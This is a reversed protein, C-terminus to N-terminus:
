FLALHLAGIFGPDACANEAGVHLRVCADQLVAVENDLRNGFVKGDLLAGRGEQKFVRTFIRNDARVGRVNGDGGNCFVQGFLLLFAKEADMEEVGDAVHVQHLNNGASPGFLRNKPMDFGQHVVTEALRGDAASVGGAKDGVSDTGHRQGGDHVGGNIRTVAKGLGVGQGAVQDEAGLLASELKQIQDAQIDADM